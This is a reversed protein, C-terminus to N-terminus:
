FGAPERPERASGLSAPAVLLARVSEGVAERLIRVRAHYRRAQLPLRDTRGDVATLMAFAAETEAALRGAELWAVELYAYAAGLQEEPLRGPTRVHRLVPVLESSLWTQEANARLLLCVDPPLSSDAPKYM